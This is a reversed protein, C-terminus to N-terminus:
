YRSENSTIPCFQLLSSAKKNYSFGMFAINALDEVEKDHPSKPRAEEEPLPEFVDFHSTDLDSELTPICPSVSNFLNDWDVSSFFPHSKIEEFNLRHDADTLLGRMLSIAETSVPPKSPFELTEKFHIIKTATTRQTQSSFPAYGYIMEFMIAGISWYDVSPGYPQKLLVEPAIYDTTGVASCVQAHRESSHMKQYYLRNIVSQPTSSNGSENFADTIEDILQVIPDSYRDMKTSLGFDTLRVHGNKTLLLNDPKIDRHIFGQKHVCNVALITEAILFRTETETLINRNILLTMLDGGPLFEMVFYLCRSDQFAYYLQVAWPNDNQVMFDKEVITNLIQNKEVLEKKKLVKMAYIHQDEKDRVLWVEGFSGRGIIKLKEFQEVKLTRRNLRKVPVEEDPIHVDNLKPISMSRNRVNKQRMQKDNTFFDKFQKELCYKAMNAKAQTIQSPLSSSDRKTKKELTVPQPFTMTLGNEGSVHDFENLNDVNTEM